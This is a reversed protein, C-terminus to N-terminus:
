VLNGMATVQSSSHATTKGSPPLLGIARIQVQLPRAGVPDVKRGPARRLRHHNSLLTRAHSAEIDRFNVERENSASKPMKFNSEAWLFQGFLQFAGSGAGERFNQPAWTGPFHRLLTAKTSPFAV